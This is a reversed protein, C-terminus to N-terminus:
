SNFKYQFKETGKKLQVCLRIIKYIQPVSQRTIQNHQSTLAASFM